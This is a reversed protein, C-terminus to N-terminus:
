PTAGKAEGFSSLLKVFGGKWPVDAGPPGLQPPSGGIFSVFVENAEHELGQAFDPLAPRLRAIENGSADLLVTEVQIGRAPSGAPLRRALVLKVNLVSLAGGARVDRRIIVDAPVLQWSATLPGELATTRVTALPTMVPAAEAYRLRLEWAMASLFAAVALAVAAFVLTGNRARRAFMRGARVHFDQLSRRVQLDAGYYAKAVRAHREFAARSLNEESSEDEQPKDARHAAFRLTKGMIILFSATYLLGAAVSMALADPMARAAMATMLALAPIILYYHRRFFRWPKIRVDRELEEVSRALDRQLSEATAAILGELHHGCFPCVKSVVPIGAGCSPCARLEGPSEGIM